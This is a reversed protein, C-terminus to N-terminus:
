SKERGLFDFPHVTCTCMGFALIINIDSINGSIRVVHFKKSYRGCDAKNWHGVWRSYALVVGTRVAGPLAGSNFIWM